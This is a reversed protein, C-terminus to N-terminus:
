KTFDYGPKSLAYQVPLPQTQAFSAFSEGYSYMTEDHFSPASYFCTFMTRERQTAYGGKHLGTTDCFLVTGKRGIMPTIDSTPISRELTSAEPYSGEPPKQPFLHGFKKGRTSGKVYIFPGSGLDVDSMYVFVKVMRPDEPDRHWNQSFQPPTNPPVVLATALDFYKLKTWMRMYSNAINLIKPHIAFQFFPNDTDIQPRIGWYHSLFKKKGFQDTLEVPEHHNMFADFSAMFSTDPFLTDLHTVAIGDRELDALIREQEADLQVPHTAHAQCAARNVVARWIPEHTKIAYYLAKLTRKLSYM